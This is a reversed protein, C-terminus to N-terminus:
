IVMKKIQLVLRGHTFRGIEDNIWSRKDTTDGNKWKLAWQYHVMVVEMSLPSEMSVPSEM